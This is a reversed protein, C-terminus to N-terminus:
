LAPGANRRSVKPSFRNEEKKWNGPWRCGKSMAGKKMKLATWMAEEFRQPVRGRAEM